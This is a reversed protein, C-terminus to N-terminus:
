PTNVTIPMQVDYMTLFYPTARDISELKTPKTGSSPPLTWNGFYQKLYFMPRHIIHLLDIFTHIDSIDKLTIKEVREQDIM